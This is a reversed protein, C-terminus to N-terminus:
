MNQLSDHFSNEHPELMTVLFALAAFLSYSGAM